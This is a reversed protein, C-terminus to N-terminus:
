QSNRELLWRACALLRRDGHAGGALQLGVPLGDGSWALPLALAPVGLLTFPRCFLPDGTTGLGAPPVGTTSPALVADVDALQDQWRWRQEDAVRRAALYREPAVARGAAIYDRLEESMADGHHDADAGLSAATEVQQITLQADVLRDFPLEVEAEVFADSAESLYRDIAERAVSELRDWGM